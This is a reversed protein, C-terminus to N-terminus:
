FIIKKKQLSCRIYAVLICNLSQTCINKDVKLDSNLGLKLIKVCKLNDHRLTCRISEGKLHANARYRVCGWPQDPASAM